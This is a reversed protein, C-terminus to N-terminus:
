VTIDNPDLDPIDAQSNGSGSEQQETEGSNDSEDTEGVAPTEETEGTGDAEGTEGSEDIDGTESPDDTYDYVPVEVKVIDSLKFAIGNIVIMPVGDQVEVHSVIGVDKYTEGSNTVSSVSVQYGILSSAYATEEAIETETKGTTKATEAPSVATISSIAYDKGNVTVFFEKNKNKVSTVAGTISTADNSNWVTVTKGALSQAYNANSYFLGDQQAQLSTFQAMQSVFDTNSM